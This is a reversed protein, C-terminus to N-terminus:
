NRKLLNWSNNLLNWPMEAYKKRQHYKIQGHEPTGFIESRKKCRRHYNLKEITDLIESVSSSIVRIYQLDYQTEHFNPLQKRAYTVKVPVEKYLNWQLKCSVINQRLRLWNELDWARIEKSLGIFNREGYWKDGSLLWTVVFGAVKWQNFFKWNNVFDMRALKTELMVMMSFMLAKLISDNGRTFWCHFHDHTTM